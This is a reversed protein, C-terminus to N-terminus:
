SLDNESFDQSSCASSDLPQILIHAHEQMTALKAITNPMCCFWSALSGLGSPCLVPYQNTKECESSEEM